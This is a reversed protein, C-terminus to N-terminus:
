TCDHAGGGGQPADASERVLIELIDVADDNEEFAFMGVKVVVRTRGDACTPRLGQRATSVTTNM